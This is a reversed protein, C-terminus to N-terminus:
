RETIISCIAKGSLDVNRWHGVFNSELKSLTYNVTQGSYLGDSYVKQFTMIDFEIKGQITASGYSDDISGDFKFKDDGTKEVNIKGAFFGKKLIGFSEEKLPFLNNSSTFCGILLKESKEM